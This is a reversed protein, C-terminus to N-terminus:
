NLRIMIPNTYAVLNEEELTDKTVRARVFCKNSNKENLNLSMIAKTENQARLIYSENIVESQGSSCNSIIDVSLPSNKHTESRAIKVTVLGFTQPKPLIASEGPYVPSPSGDIELSLQLQEIVNGHGAWFTGTKLSQLLGDYDKTPAIVHIRAFGCPPYDIKANHYGSSAIAGWLPIGQELLKDWTGGINAIAPGWRDSTKFQNNYSGIQEDKQHGLTGSIATINRRNKNWSIIDALNESAKENKRSPHNYIAITNSFESENQLITAFFYEDQQSVPLVAAEEITTM